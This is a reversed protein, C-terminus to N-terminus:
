SNALEDARKIAADIGKTVVSHIGNARMTNIAAETTGGQICVNSILQNLDQHDNQAIHAAGLATQVVFQRAIDAELGYNIATQQMIQMLQYFYAPGSGSIGTIVDILKENELWTTIGVSNMIEQAISKDEDSCNSNAYLGSAGLGHLSPMNPMVRIIPVATGIWQQISKCTIGAAVSIVAPRNQAFENQHQELLEQMVQPKVALVVYDAKDIVDRNDSSTVIAYKQTLNELKNKNRDAVIIHKPEWGSAVLGGVISSAMHGGGIFAIKTM